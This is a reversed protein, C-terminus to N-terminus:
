VKNELANGVHNLGVGVDVRSTNKWSRGRAGRQGSSRIWSAPRWWAPWPKPQVILDRSVCGSTTAPRLPPGWFGSRLGSCRRPRRSFDCSWCPSAASFPSFTRAPIFLITTAWIRLVAERIDHRGLPVSGLQRALVPFVRMFATPDWRSLRLVALIQPALMEEMHANLWGLLAFLDETGFAEQADQYAKATAPFQDGKHGQLFACVNLSASHKAPLLAEGGAAAFYKGIADFNVM